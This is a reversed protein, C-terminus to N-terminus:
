LERELRAAEEGRGLDLLAEGTQIRARMMGPELKMAQRCDTLALNSRNALTFLRARDLWLVAAGQSKGIQADLVKIRPSVKESTRVTAAVRKGYRDSPDLANAKDSDVLAKDWEHLELYLNARRIRGVATEDLALARTRFEVADRWRKQAACLDALKELGNVAEPRAAVYLRWYREAASTIKIRKPWMAACIM